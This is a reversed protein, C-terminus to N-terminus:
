NTIARVVKGDSIFIITGAEATSLLQAGVNEVREVVEPHPHGYDNDKGASVVAYQPEVVRLFDESSSTRSGHHGLKLVESKLSSGYQDVLYQETGEPADGTLLFETTGYRLLAVISSANSEWPAPDSIPSLITLTTSAGLRWVQGSRAYTVKAGESEVATDFAESAATDNVNETRLVEAVEYRALIDTLGAVHDKDPHTGILLDITRDGVAIVETIERVVSGDPGGDILVQVGDPTEIFIADGQGVDLFAVHLENSNKSVGGIGLLATASSGVVAAGVLPLWLLLTVVAMVGLALLRLRLVSENM